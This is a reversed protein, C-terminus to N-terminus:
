WLVGSRTGQLRAREDKAHRDVEASLVEYRPADAPFLKSMKDIVAVLEEVSPSLAIYHSDNEISRFLM